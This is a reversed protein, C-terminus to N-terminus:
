QRQLHGRLQWCGCHLAPAFHVILRGLRQARSGHRGQHGGSDPWGHGGPTQRTERLGLGPFRPPQPGAPRGGCLGAAWRLQCRGLRSQAVVASGPWPHGPVPPPLLSYYGSDGELWNGTKADVLEVLFM